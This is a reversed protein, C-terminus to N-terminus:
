FVCFVMEMMVIWNKGDEIGEYFGYFVYFYCIFFVYIYCISFVIKDVSMLKLYLRGLIIM